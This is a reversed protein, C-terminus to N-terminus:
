RAISKRDLLFYIRGINLHDIYLLEGILLLHIVGLYQGLVIIQMSYYLINLEKTNGGVINFEFRLNCIQYFHCSKKEHLHKSGLCKNFSSTRLPM